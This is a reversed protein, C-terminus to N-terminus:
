PPIRPVLWSNDYWSFTFLTGRTCNTELRISTKGLRSLFLGYLPYVPYKILQEDGRPKGHRSTFSGHLGTSSCLPESNIGMSRNYNPKNVIHGKEYLNGSTVSCVSRCLKALDRQPVPPNRMAHAHSRILYFSFRKDHLWPFTTTNLETYINVIKYVILCCRGRVRLDGRNSRLSVGRLLHGPPLSSARPARESCTEAVCQLM